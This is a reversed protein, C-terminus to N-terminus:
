RRVAGPPGVGVRHGRVGGVDDGTFRDLSIRRDRELWEGCPQVLRGLIEIDQPPVAVLTRRLKATASEVGHASIENRRKRAPRDITFRATPRASIATISLNRSGGGRWGQM